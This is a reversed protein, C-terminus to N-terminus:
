QRRWYGSNSTMENTDAELEEPKLVKIDSRSVEVSFALQIKDLRLVLRDPGPTRQVIGRAGTFPGAILTVYEGVKVYNEPRLTEPHEVMIRLTDIQVDPIPAWKGAFKLINLVGPTDLVEMRDKLAIKCFVYGRILPEEVRKKRDSWQKLHSIMPTFVEIGKKLLRDDVKKEHRVQVYFAYWHAVTNLDHKEM